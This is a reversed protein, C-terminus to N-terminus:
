RKGGLRAMVGALLERHGREIEAVITEAMQRRAASLADTAKHIATEAQALANLAEDISVDAAPALDDSRAAQAAPPPTQPEPWEAVTPLTKPDPLRKAEVKPEPTPRSLEPWEALTADANRTVYGPERRLLSLSAAVTERNVSPYAKQVIPLVRAAEPYHPQTLPVKLAVLLRTLGRSKITKKAHETPPATPPPEQPTPVPDPEVPETPTPSPPAEPSPPTQGDARKAEEMAKALTEAQAAHLQQRRLDGRQDWIDSGKPKVPAVYDKFTADLLQRVDGTSMPVPTYVLDREKAEKLLRTSSKHAIWELLLMAGVGKPISAKSWKAEDQSTWLEIKPHNWWKPGLNGPLCGVILIKLDLDRVVSRLGPLFGKAMVSMPAEVGDSPPFRDDVVKAPPPVFTSTKSAVIDRLSAM